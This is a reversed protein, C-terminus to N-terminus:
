LGFPKSPVVVHTCTNIRVVLQLCFSLAGSRALWGGRSASMGGNQAGTKRDTPIEIGPEGYTPRQMQRGAEPKQLSQLFIHTGSDLQM